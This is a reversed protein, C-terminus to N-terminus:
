NVIQDEESYTADEQCSEENSQQWLFDDESGNMKNPIGSYLNESVYKASYTALSQSDVLV